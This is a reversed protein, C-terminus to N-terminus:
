QGITFNEDPIDINYNFETFEIKASCRGGMDYVEIYRVYADGGLAMVAKKANQSIPFIDTELIVGRDESNADTNIATDQSNYYLKFFNNIFLCSLADDAKAIVPNGRHSSILVKGEKECIVSDISGDAQLFETKYMGQEKYYQILNYQNETKNSYVTMVAKASYSEMNMYRKHIKKYIDTGDASFNMKIGCSTTIMLTLFIIFCMKLKKCM